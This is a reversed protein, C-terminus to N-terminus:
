FCGKHRNFHHLYKNKYIDIFGKVIWDGQDTAIIKNFGEVELQLAQLFQEKTM